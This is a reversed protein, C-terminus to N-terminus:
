WTGEQVVCTFPLHFVKVHKVCFLLAAPYMSIEMYRLVHLASFYMSIEM